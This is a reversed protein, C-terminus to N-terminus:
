TPQLFCPELHQQQPGEDCLVNLAADAAEGGREGIQEEVLVAVICRSGSHPQLQVVACIDMNEELQAHQEGVFRREM